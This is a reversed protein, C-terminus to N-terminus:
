WSIGLLRAIAEEVAAASGGDESEHSSVGMREVELAYTMGSEAIGHCM